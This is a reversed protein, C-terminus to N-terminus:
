DLRAKKSTQGTNVPKFVNPNNVEVKTSQEIVKQQKDANMQEENLADLFKSERLSYQWQCDKRNLTKLIIEPSYLKLLATATIIQMKYKKKWEDTNWFKHPLPIRKKKAERDCMIEAILHAPKCSKGTIISVFNM